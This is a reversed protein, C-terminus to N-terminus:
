LALIPAYARLGDAKLAVLDGISVSIQMRRAAPLRL